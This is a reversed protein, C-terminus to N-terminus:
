QKIFQTSSSTGDNVVLVLYNGKLLKSVDITSQTAGEQLNRTMVVKGDVTIVKIAASASTKEHSVTLSNAVPNPFVDLKISQKKTNITITKSYSYKGDKDAIKLRYYTLGSVNADNFSYSAITANKASVFGINNFSLGNNSKEISYGNLNVENTVSWNISASNGLLSGSFSKITAPMPSNYWGDSVRFGDLIGTTNIGTASGQRICLSVISSADATADTSVADPVSPETTPVGSSFVFISAVDDTTTGTNFTYKLVVLYTTNLAFDATTYTITSTSNKAIGLKYNTGPTSGDKIFFRGFFGTVSSGATGGFHIQYDATPATVASINILFSAYVSGSNFSGVVANADERSTSAIHAFNVASGVGSGSYGTYTLGTPNYSIPGATGSHKKWIVGGLAPNTLTDNATTGTTTYVFNEVFQANVFSVLFLIVSFLLIKKM